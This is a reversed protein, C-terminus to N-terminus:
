RSPSWPYISVGQAGDNAIEGRLKRAQRQWFWRNRWARLPSASPSTFQTRSTSVDM